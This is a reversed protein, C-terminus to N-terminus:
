ARHSKEFRSLITEAISGLADLQDPSLVDIVYERLAEEYYARAETALKRGHETVRIVAGRNDEVCDERMVLGRAEMRKLQHSLRSKEWELGCRLAIARVSEASTETLAILIEFDAESLGTKDTMQKNMRETLRLRMRQYNTWATIQSDTLQETKM